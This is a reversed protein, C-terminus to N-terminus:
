RRSQLKRWGGARNRAAIQRFMALLAPRNVAEGEFIAIQRGTRNDQGATVIGEPDDVLPDYLFINVHNKTAQLAAINGELVFYPQVTRKITEEVEPDAEHVLDRAEQCIAQQWGPLAAIYEDVRPDKEYTM